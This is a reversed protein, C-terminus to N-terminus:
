KTFRYKCVPSLIRTAGCAYAILIYEGSELEATNIAFDDTGALTNGNEAYTAAALANIDSSYDSAFVDLSRIAYDWPTDKDSPETLITEDSKLTFTFTFDDLTAMDTTFIESVVPLTFHGKADVYTACLVYQSNSTLNQMRNRFTGSNLIKTLNIYPDNGNYGLHMKADRIMMQAIDGEQLNRVDQESYIAALWTANNDSPVIEYDVTTATINDVDLAITAGSVPDFVTLHEWIYQEDEAPMCNCNPICGTLTLAAACLLIPAFTKM